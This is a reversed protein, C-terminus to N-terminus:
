EEVSAEIYETIHRLTDAQYKYSTMYLQANPVDLFGLVYTTVATVILDNAVDETPEGEEPTTPDSLFSSVIGLRKLDLFGADIWSNIQNDFDTHNIGQIKKVNALIQEKM